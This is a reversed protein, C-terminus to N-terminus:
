VFVTLFIFAVLVVGALSFLCYFDIFCVNFTWHRGGYFDSFTLIWGIPPPLSFGPPM